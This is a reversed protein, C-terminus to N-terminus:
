RALMERGALVVDENAGGHCGHVDLDDPLEELGERVQLGDQDDGAARADAERRGLSVRLAGEIRCGAQYRAHGGEEGDDLADEALRDGDEEEELIDDHIGIVEDLLADREDISCDVDPRGDDVALEETTSGTRAAVPGVEGEGSRRSNPNVSTAAQGGTPKGKPLEGAALRTRVDVKAGESAAERRTKWKLHRRLELGKRSIRKVGVM